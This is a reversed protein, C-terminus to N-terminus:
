SVSYVQAWQELSIARFLISSPLAGPADSVFKRCEDQFRRSDLLRSMRLEVGDWLSRHGNQMGHQLWRKEPTNFGLKTKRLRIKEPLMGVLSRRLLWKTWGDRLKLSAQCRLSFEVLRYDLFPLRSEVSHAMSARDEHHLLAPISSYILDIKQREAITSAHGIKPRATQLQDVLPATGIRRALSFQTSLPAPLYRMASGPNGYSTTGQKLWLYSERFFSPKAHRLLHWLYFFHYKKYGCLSEDGGQGGLIVPVGHARSEAM